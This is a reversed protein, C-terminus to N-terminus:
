DAGGGLRVKLENLQNKKIRQQGLRLGIRHIEKQLAQTKSRSREFQLRYQLKMKREYIFIGYLLAAMMSMVFFTAAPEPLIQLMVFNVPLIFTCLMTLVIVLGLKYRSMKLNKRPAKLKRLRSQLDEARQNLLTETTQTRLLEADIRM